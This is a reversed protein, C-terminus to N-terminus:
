RNIRGFSDPASINENSLLSFYPQHRSEWLGLIGGPMRFASVLTLFLASLISLLVHIGNKKPHLIVIMFATLLAWGAAFLALAHFPQTERVGHTLLVILALLSGGILYPSIVKTPLPPREEDDGKPTIKWEQFNKSVAALVGSITGIILWPMRTLEFLPAEWSLVPVDGPRLVKFRRFLAIPILALFAYSAAFALFWFYNLRMMPVDILLVMGLMLFGILVTGGYLLYWLESYVFQVIHCAKLSRIRSPLLTLFIITLSRSWQFEQTVGEAVTGPGEGHAIADIAFAGKWGAANMLLSTSHDEALEPGLGGVEKLASTRVAYHSGICLPAFRNSYGAQQVGHLAAEAYLRGRAFWSQSANSDCISPAAVYGVSPDNFPRLIELLYNRTPVHDADFQSVFDYREYGYNDYFYALNGEKCRTRRPWSKQHYDSVGFRSSIQIGHSHCWHIVDETPQEDALWTDHEVSQDLCAELTRRVVEWAESPAKTVVTAVRWDPQPTLSKRPAVSRLVFFYLWFPSIVEYLVIYTAGITFPLFVHHAPHLWWSLYLFAIVASPVIALLLLVKQSRGLLPVSYSRDDSNM